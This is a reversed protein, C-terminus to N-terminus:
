DLRLFSVCIFCDAGLIPWLEYRALEGITGIKSLQYQTITTNTISHEPTRTLIADMPDTALVKNISIQPSTKRLTPRVDDHNQNTSNVSLKPVTAYIPIM